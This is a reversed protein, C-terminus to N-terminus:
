EEPISGCDAELKGATAFHRRLAPLLLLLLLLLLLM